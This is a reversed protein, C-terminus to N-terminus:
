AGSVIDHWDGLTREWFHTPETGKVHAFAVVNAAAPWYFVLAKATRPYIPEGDPGYVGTGENQFKGYEAGVVVRATAVDGIMEAPEAQISDHLQGTRFPAYMQAREVFRQAIDDARSQAFDRVRASLGTTDISM